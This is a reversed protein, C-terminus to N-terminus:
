TINIDNKHYTKLTSSIKKKKKKKWERTHEDIEDERTFIEDGSRNFENLHFNKKGLTWTDDGLVQCEFSYIWAM